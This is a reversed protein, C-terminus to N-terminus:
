RRSKFVQRMLKMRKERMEDLKSELKSLLSEDEPECRQWIYHSIFKNLQHKWSIQYNKEKMQKLADIIRLLYEM